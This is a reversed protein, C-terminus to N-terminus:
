TFEVRVRVFLKKEVYARGCNHCQHIKNYPNWKIAGKYYCEPCYNNVLFSKMNQVELAKCHFSGDPSHVTVEIM